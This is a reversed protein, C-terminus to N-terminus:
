REESAYYVWYKATTFLVITLVLAFIFMLWALTAGYGMSFFAFSQKYFYVMYFRTMGEPFGTGGNLVFPALFYQLSGIVGLVLQYFIVPTILPITIRFLSTFWNAGDMEAAEYLETPVGQLGALFIIMAGGVGWLGFMTYAYYVLRPDALWRVGETGTLQLGTVRSLIINIWGTHENLVGNWILVTAVLPIMSPVYFLTRFLSKGLVNKSNLIIALLLAFGLGIPLSIAAFHLTRFFSLRVEMDFMTARKWNDFAIFTAQDPVAPNFNLLSFVFSAIMPLFYFALFGIIWPSLFFLGWLAEKRHIGSMRVKTKKIPKELTTVAM